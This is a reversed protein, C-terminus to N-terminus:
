SPLIEKAAAAELWSPYEAMLLDFLDEDNPDKPNEVLFFNANDVVRGEMEDLKELFTFDSGFIRSFFGGQSKPRRGIAMFQWFFPESSADRIQGETLDRDHTNGDTVFMVYVPLLGYDAQAKYHSRVVQIARGYNTGGEFPFEARIRAVVGDVEEIGIAGMKHAMAGFPFIDIEGDDDFRYGLAVIREILHQVSGSNFLGMMSASIDLVLAVKARDRKVGKKELSVQVKKVLDVMGPRRKELDVLKKDLSVLSGSAAPQPVPAANVPADDAVSVGFHEALPKLGGNFGQGVARFKWAGQRQYVEGLILAAETRGETEPRYDLTAGGADAVTVTVSKMASFPGGAETTLTLAVKEVTAPLAGTDVTFEQVGPKQPAATVAGEAGKPQNFFIMDADSGVRGDPGLVFASADAGPGDWAVTVTVRPAPSSSSLAANGGTALETAM